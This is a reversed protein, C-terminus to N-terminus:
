GVGPRAAQTVTIGEALDVLQEDTLGVSGAMQVVVEHADDHYELTRLGPDESGGNARIGGPLGGVSVPEGKIVGPAASRSELMVVLKDQFNLWHTTDGERAITFVLEDSGQVVFGEPVRAVEFGAPQRGDYSVLAIGPASSSSSPGGSSGGSSGASPGAVRPAPDDSAAVMATGLGAGLALTLGVGAAAAATRRRRGLAASGRALDASVVDDGAPPVPRDLRALRDLVDTM